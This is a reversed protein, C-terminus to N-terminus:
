LQKIIYEADTGVGQLLVSARSSQWPLGLFYLGKVPTVGRQHNPAGKEDVVSPIDIWRYDSIFGTSWIVNSVEVSSGDDFFLNKEDASVARPKLLVSRNRLQSKLEFGFIPDPKNKIFQGVKSNVNAKYI